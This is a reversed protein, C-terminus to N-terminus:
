HHFDHQRYMVLSMSTVEVLQDVTMPWTIVDAFLSYDACDPGYWGIYGKQTVCGYVDHDRTSFMRPEHPSFGNRGRHSVDVSHYTLTYSSTEPGVMFGNYYLNIRGGTHKLELKARYYSQSTLFHLNELGIFYDKTNAIDEPHANGAKATAWDMEFSTNTKRLFTWNPVWGGLSCSVQGNFLYAFLM